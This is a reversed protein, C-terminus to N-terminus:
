VIRALADFTRRVVEPTILEPTLNALMVLGEIVAHLMRAFDEAPMPLDKAAGSATMAAVAQRYAEANAQVLRQRMEDHALAYLNFSAAGIASARRDPLAEVLAEGLRRMRDAYGMDSPFEPTVPRWRSEVVAMFLEDRDHFNGYIAGRTMGARRAVADLSTAEFGKEGVIEAAAAILRARTRARKDGKPQGSRSAM